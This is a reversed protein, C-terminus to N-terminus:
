NSCINKWTRRYNIGDKTTVISGVETNAMASGSTSYKRYLKGSDYYFYEKLLSANVLIEKPIKIFAM